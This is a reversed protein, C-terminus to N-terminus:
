LIFVTTRFYYKKWKFMMKLSFYNNAINPEWKSTCRHTHAISLCLDLYILLFSAFRIFIIEIFFIISSISHRNKSSHQTESLKQKAFLTKHFQGWTLSKQYDQILHFKFLWKEAKMRDRVVRGLAKARSIQRARNFASKIM